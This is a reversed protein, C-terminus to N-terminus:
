SSSCCQTICLFHPSGCQWQQTPCGGIQPAKDLAWAEYDQPFCAMVDAMSQELARAAQQAMSALCASYFEMAIQCRTEASRTHPRLLKFTAVEEEALDDGAEGLAPCAAALEEESSCALM